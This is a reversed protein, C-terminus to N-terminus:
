GDVDWEEEFASLQLAAEPSVGAEACAEFDVQTEGNVADIAALAAARDARRFLTRIPVGNPCEDAVTAAALEVADPHLPPAQSARLAEAIAKEGRLLPVQISVDFIDSLASEDGRTCTALVLLSRDDELPVSDLPERLLSALVPALSPGGLDCLAHVDDLVLAFRRQARAKRFAECLAAVLDGGNSSELFDALSLFTAGELEGADIAMAAAWAALASTGAGRTEGVLLASRVEAGASPLALRRLMRRARAHAACGVGHRGYRSALGNPRRNLTEFGAMEMPLASMPGLPVEPENLPAAKPPSPKVIAPKPPEPVPPALKHPQATAVEGPLKPTTPAPKPPEPRAAMPKPPEPNTPAPKPPEQTPAALNPPEPITPSPKPQELITPAPKPSQPVTAAPRPPEPITPAPNLPEPISPTPKSTMPVTPAPGPPERTSTALKPPEPITPAPKPPEPITPTPKPPQPVTAAPQPPGPVSPPPKPPEPIDPPLKPPEPTIAAAPKPPESRATQSEPRVLPRQVPPPKNTQAEWKVSSPQIPTPKNAREAKTPTSPPAAIAARIPSPQTPSPTAAVVKAPAGKPTDTELKVSAPPPPGPRVVHVPPPGTPQPVASEAVAPGREQDYFYDLFTSDIYPLNGQVQDPQGAHRMVVEILAAINTTAKYTRTPGGLQLLSSSTRADLLRPSGLVQGNPRRMSVVISGVLPKLLTLVNDAHRSMVVPDPPVPVKDPIDDALPLLVDPSRAAASTSGGARSRASAPLRHVPSFIHLLVDWQEGRAIHLSAYRAEGGASRWLRAWTGQDVDAM